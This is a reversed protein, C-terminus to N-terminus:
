VQHNESKHTTDVSVKALYSANNPLLKTNLLSNLNANFYYYIVELGATQTRWM